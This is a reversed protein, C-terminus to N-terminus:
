RHAEHVRTADHVSVQFGLVDDEGVLAVVRRYFNDVEAEGPYFAAALWQVSGTERKGIGGRFNYGSLSVILAAVKPAQPRNQVRHQGALRGKPRARGVQRRPDSGALDIEIALRPAVNGAQPLLHCLTQQRDVRVFSQRRARQRIM